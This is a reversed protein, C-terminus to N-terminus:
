LAPIDCYSVDNADLVLCVSYFPLTRQANVQGQFQLLLVVKLPLTLLPVTFFEILESYVTYELIFYFHLPQLIVSLM